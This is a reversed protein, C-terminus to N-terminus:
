FGRLPVVHKRFITRGGFGNFISYASVALNIAQVISNYFSSPAVGREENNFPPSSIIERWPSGPEHDKEYFENGTISKLISEM